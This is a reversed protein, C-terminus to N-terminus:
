KVPTNSKKNKENETLTLSFFIGSIKIKFEDTKKIEVKINRTLIFFLATLLSLTVYIAAM